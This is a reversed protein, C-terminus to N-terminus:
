PAVVQEEGATCLEAEGSGPGSKTEASQGNLWPCYLPQLQKTFQLPCYLATTTSQLQCYLASTTCHVTTSLIPVTTSQLITSQLPCYMFQLRSYYLPGYHVICPSYNHVATSLVPVTNTYKLARQCTMSMGALRPFCALRQQRRPCCRRHICCRSATNPKADKKQPMKKPIEPM